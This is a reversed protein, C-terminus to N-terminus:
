RRSRRELGRRIPVDHGPRIRHHRSDTRGCGPLDGSSREQNRLATLAEGCRTFRTRTSPGPQTRPSSMSSFRAPLTRPPRSGRAVAWELSLDCLPRVGSSRGRLLDGAANADLLRSSSPRDPSRSALGLHGLLVREGGRDDQRGREPRAFSWAAHGGRPVPDTRERLGDHRDGDNTFRGPCGFRPPPFCHPNKTSRPGKPYARRTESGGDDRSPASLEGRLADSWGDESNM